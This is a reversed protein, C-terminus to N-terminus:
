FGYLKEGQFSLPNERFYNSAGKTREKNRELVSECSGNASKCWGDARQFVTKKSSNGRM